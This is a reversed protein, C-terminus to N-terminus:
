FFDGLSTEVSTLTVSKVVGLGQILNYLDPNKVLDSVTKGKLYKEILIKFEEGGVRVSKGSGEKGMYVDEGKTHLTVGDKGKAWEKITVELAVTDIDGLDFEDIVFSNFMNSDEEEKQLNNGGKLKLAQDLDEEPVFNFEFRKTTLAQIKNIIGCDDLYAHLYFINSAYWDPPTISFFVDFICFLHSASTDNPLKFNELFTRTTKYITAPM